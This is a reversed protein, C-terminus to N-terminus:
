IILFFNDERYRIKTEQLDKTESKKITSFVESNIFFKQKRLFFSGRNKTKSNEFASVKAFIPLFRSFRLLKQGLFNRGQSYNKLIHSYVLCLKLGSYIQLNVFIFLDEKDYVCTRVLFCFLIVLRLNKHLHQSQKPATSM